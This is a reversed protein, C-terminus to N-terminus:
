KKLYNLSLCILLYLSKFFKYDMHIYYVKFGDMLKQLSSTSLSNKSNRWFSLKKDNAGFFHGTKLIKLWLVFDEKTKINPFKCYESFITRDVMVTSLGIDCSKLLEEFHKFIRATRHNLIVGDEDIINYSTHSCYLNKDQMYNIQCEIKNPVWIDDADLFAIYAGKSKSIGINRSEGAGLTKPNIIISIRHDLDKLRLIYDLDDHSFDDYIIIIELNKHSQNIASKVSEEIFIKKKFYPIIVSVLKM